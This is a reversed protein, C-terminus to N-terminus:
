EIGRKEVSRSAKCALSMLADVFIDMDNRIDCKEFNRELEAQWKGNELLAIADTELTYADLKSVAVVGANVCCAIRHPQDAAIPVAICPRRCALVQLLTDGGNSIVLRAGRILELLHDM